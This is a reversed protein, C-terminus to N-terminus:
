SDKEAKITEFVSWMQNLFINQKGRFICEAVGSTDFLSGEAIQKTKSLSCTSLCKKVIERIILKFVMKFQYKKNLFFAHDLWCYKYLLHAIETGL